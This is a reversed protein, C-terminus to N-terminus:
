TVPPCPAPVFAIVSGDGAADFRRYLRLSSRTACQCHQRAAKRFQGPQHGHVTIRLAEGQQMPNGRPETIIRGPPLGIDVGFVLVQLLEGSLDADLDVPELGEGPEARAGMGLTFSQDGPQFRAMRHQALDSAEEHVAEAGPLPGDQRWAQGDMPVALAQM